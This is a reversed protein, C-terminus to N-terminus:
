VHARGIQNLTHQVQAYDKRLDENRQRAEALLQDLTQAKTTAGNLASQSDNYSAQLADYESKLKNYKGNSVCSTPATLLAAAAIVAAAFTSLRIITKM